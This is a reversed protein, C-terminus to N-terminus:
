PRTPMDSCWSHDNLALTADSPRQPIVLRGLRAGPRQPHLSLLLAGSHHHTSGLTWSQPMHPAFYSQSSELLVLKSAPAWLDRCKRSGQAFSSFPSQPSKRLPLRPQLGVRDTWEPTHTPGPASSKPSPQYCGCSRIADNHVGLLVALVLMAPGCQPVSRTLGGCRRVCSTASCSCLNDGHFM